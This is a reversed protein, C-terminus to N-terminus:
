SEYRVGKKIYVRRVRPTIGCIVEYNITDLRKAVEDISIIGGMLIVDDEKSITDDIRIFMQDMCVRAVIEYRKKNIEVYGGQNKRLIGDGYGIPIVGIIEDETSQYTIGYGIKEGKKIHKIESVHSVLRFTPKLFDMGKDLSLGYMSIGLRMHSTFDIDKEYKIASSSNSCHVMEFPYDLNHLIHEFMNRQKMYYSVDGDATAFHTYIGQVIVEKKPDLLLMAKRLDDINKFGLRHMGTDVNIHIKLPKSISLLDQVQDMNSVTIIYDHEACHQYSEKNVIGMILIQLDKFHERLQDAEEVLSVAVFNVGHDVLYDAVQVAGHGYADAKIIPIVTKTKHMSQVYSYNHWLNDLNIELYTLRHNM